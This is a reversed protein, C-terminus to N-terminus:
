RVDWNWTSACVEIEATWKVAFTLVLSFKTSQMIVQSSYVLSNNPDRRSRKIGTCSNWYMSVLLSNPGLIKRSTILPFSIMRRVPIRFWPEEFECGRRYASQPFKKLVDSTWFTLLKNLSPQQTWNHPKIYV